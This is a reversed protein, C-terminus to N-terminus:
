NTTQQNHCCHTRRLNIEVPQPTTPTVVLSQMRLLQLVMEVSGMSILQGVEASTAAAVKEEEGLTIELLM